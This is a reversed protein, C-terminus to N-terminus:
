LGFLRKEVKSFGELEELIDTFSELGLFAGEIKKKAELIESIFAQAQFTYIFFSLFLFRYM